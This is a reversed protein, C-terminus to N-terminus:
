KRPSYYRTLWSSLGDLGPFLVRETMNIQDLKDRIEWKLDSPIIIRFFSDPHQLLWDDLRASSSSLMSFMAFQNVIRNDLAPPNLFIAFVEESLQDFQQFSTAVRSLIDVNFAVAYEEELIRLLKEPLHNRIVELRVCWIVSDIDYKDLEATAFHAAVYPSNSWDLLRTPLGHHQAVALWNWISDGPSADRFAYQRFNRLIVSELRQYNGGLRVLSTTLDYSVDSCGRFAFPSRFRQLSERWSDTFVAANLEEWSAIRIDGPIQM